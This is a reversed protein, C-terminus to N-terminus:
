EAEGELYALRAIVKRAHEVEAEGYTHKITEPRHTLWDTIWQNEEAWSGFGAARTEALIPNTNDTHFHSTFM